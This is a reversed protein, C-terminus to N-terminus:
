EIFRNYISLYAEGMKEITFRDEIMKKGNEGMKKIVSPNDLLCIISKEIINHDIKDILFGNVGNIIIENNGGLNNAIVPKSLAMYELITNSIGEGNPSLLVGIDCASVLEEVNTIKGTFIIFPNGNAEEVAKEYLSSDHSNGGVCIFSVDDRISLIGKASQVFSIYDKNQTFSAVMIVAFKTTINYKDRVSKNNPMNEFRHMNLGNYIVFSKNKKPKFVNLGAKSNSIIVDSFFFNIKTMLAKTSFISIRKPASTIESNILPIHNFISAPLTIFTPLSGWTHIIDPKFSHVLYIIKLPVIMNRFISGDTLYTYPIKLNHFSLYHIINKGLVVMMEFSTHRCLYSLLEILRREKGGADLTGIVFIIKM